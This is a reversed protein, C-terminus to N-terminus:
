DGFETKPALKEIEIGYGMADGESECEYVVRGKCRVRSFVSGSIETPVSLSMHLSSGVLLRQPSTIYMGSQSINIAHTSVNHGAPSRFYVPITLFIRPNARRDPASM